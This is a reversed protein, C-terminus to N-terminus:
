ELKLDNPKKSKRTCTSKRGSPGKLRTTWGHSTTVHHHCKVQYAPTWQVTYKYKKWNDEMSHQSLEPEALIDNTGEALDSRVKDWDAKTYQFIKRRKPKIKPPSINSDVVFMEHDSIGPVTDYSRVLTPNNTLYLDLDPVLGWNLSVAFDRMRPIDRMGPIVPSGEFSGHDSLQAIDNM